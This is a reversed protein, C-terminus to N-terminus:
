PLFKRHGRSRHWRDPQLLWKRPFPSWKISSAVAPDPASCSPSVGTLGASASSSTTVPMDPAPAAGSRVGQLVVAPVDHVVKRGLHQASQRFDDGVSRFGDGFKATTTSTRLLSRKVSMWVARPAEAGGADGEPYQEEVGVVVDQDAAELLAPARMRQLTPARIRSPIPKSRSTRRSSRSCASTTKSVLSNLTWPRAVAIVSSNLSV